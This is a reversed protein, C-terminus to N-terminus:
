AAAGLVRRPLGPPLPQAVPILWVQPHHVAVPAVERGDRLLPQVRGTVTLPASLMPVNSVLPERPWPWLLLQRPPVNLTKEIGGEITCRVTALLLQTKIQVSIYKAQHAM